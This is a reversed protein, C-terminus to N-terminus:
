CKEARLCQDFLSECIGKIYQIEYRMIKLDLARSQGQLKYCGDIFEEISVSNSNDHDLLTFLTEADSVDLKMSNFYAMVREDDLRRAFEELSIFGTDDTDMEEFVDRMSILYAKKTELEEIVVIERDHASSQMANDVFVATIVNVVAVATFVIYFLFLWNYYWPLVSLADFYVVWDNGGSMAMFLSLMSSDMTGFSRSLAIITVKDVSAVHDELLYKTTASTFVLAFGCWLIGLILVVWVLAKVSGLISYIMIRLERFFLSVRIVRAIRVVRIVRLIRLVSLNELIGQKNANSISDLV